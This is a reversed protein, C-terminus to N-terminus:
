GIKELIGGYQNDDLAQCTVQHRLDRLLLPRAGHHKPREDQRSGNESQRDTRAERVCTAAPSTSRASSTSGASTRGTSTSGTSATTATGSSPARATATTSRASAAFAMSTATDASGASTASAM